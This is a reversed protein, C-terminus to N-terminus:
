CSWCATAARLLRAGRRAMKKLLMWARKGACCRCKLRRCSGRLTGIGGGACRSANAPGAKPDTADHSTRSLLVRAPVLGVLVMGMYHMIPLLM